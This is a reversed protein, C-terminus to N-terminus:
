RSTKGDARLFLQLWQDIQGKEDYEKVISLTGYKM